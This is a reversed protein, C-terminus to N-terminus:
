PILKANEANCLIIEELDTHLLLFTVVTDESCFVEQVM